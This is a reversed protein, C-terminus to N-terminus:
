MKGVKIGAFLGEDDEGEPITGQYESMRPTKPQVWGSAFDTIENDMKDEVLAAYRHEDAWHNSWDDAPVELFAGKNEDWERHFQGLADIPVKCKEKDLYLRSLFLRGKDIGDIEKISPVKDFEIGVEKATQWRTKGTAIETAKIDHPAFHRGFIYPKKLVKEIMDTLGEDGTGELADIMHPINGFRQYFGVCMKPGKGLDWVTHVKMAKDYPVLRIRNDARAQALEKAYYAGKVAAEFSCYWEQNFEDETMLNQQVLHRDEELALRLNDITEGKEIKLSDDITKYIVTWNKDSQATEYIRHFENKGKPTGSFIWYGRHDALCKTIIESFLNSPQQSAEDQCGGWLGIGRLSDPNESGLLMLRSGNPFKLILDSENKEVGPIPRAIQKAIEWAIRKAQKFTPAIYAYQSNEKNLADLILHALIATTKGARRHLVMVLWRQKNNHLTDAWVRPTYDLDYTM